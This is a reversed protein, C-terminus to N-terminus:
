WILGRLESDALVKHQFGDAWIDCKCDNEKCKFCNGGYTKCGTGYSLLSHHEDTKKLYECTYQKKM